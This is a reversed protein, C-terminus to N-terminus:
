SSSLCRQVCQVDADAYRQPWSGSTKTRHDVLRPRYAADRIEDFASVPSKNENDRYQATFGSSTSQRPEGNTQAQYRGLDRGTMEAKRNAPRENQRNERNQKSLRAVDLNALRLDEAVNSLKQEVIRRKDIKTRVSQQSEGLEEERTGLCKEQYEYRRQL